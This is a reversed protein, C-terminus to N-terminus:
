KGKEELDESYKPSNTRDCIEQILEKVYRSKYPNFRKDDPDVIRSRIFVKVPVWVEETTFRDEGFITTQGPKTKKLENIHELVKAPPVFFRAAMNEPVDMYIRDEGCLKKLEDLLEKDM